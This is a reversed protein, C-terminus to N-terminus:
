YETVSPKRPLPLIKPRPVVAGRVGGHRHCLQAFNLRLFAHLEPDPRGSLYERALQLMRADFKKQSHTHVEYRGEHRRLDGDFNPGIHFLEHFITIFKEDFDQNLFRPLCFTMLYLVESQEVRFRQIQYEAGRQRRVMHGHKFRM